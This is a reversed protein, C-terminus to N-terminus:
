VRLLSTATDLPPVSVAQKRLLPALLDEESIIGVPRGSQQDKVVALSRGRKRLRQLTELAPTDSHTEDAPRMHQRVLRDPPLSGPISMIDLVGGLNGNEDMVPLASFGRQTALRIADNVTLDPPVAATQKLHIMLDSTKYRNYDIVRAILSAAGASLQGDKYLSATLTKFDERASSEDTSPSAGGSHMRRIAKFPTRFWGSLAVLPYLHVLIRYPYRRFLTKPVVELGVLFVPLAFLFGVAYGAPGLTQILKWIIIIFATLNTLHNAVTVAGLLAERDELLRLLDAARKGGADAAHRVRVRSVSLVASEVGSLLFSLVLALLLILWIM